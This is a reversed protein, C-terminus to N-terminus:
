KRKKAAIFAKVKAKRANLAVFHHVHSGDREAHRGLLYIITCHVFHINFFLIASITAKKESEGLICISFFTGLAFTKARCRIRRLFANMDRFLAKTRQSWMYPIEISAMYDIVLLM